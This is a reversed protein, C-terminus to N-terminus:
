LNTKFSQKDTENIELRNTEKKLFTKIGFGCGWYLNNAPDQGNGIKKPVPIIGQNDNDCLAVLVHIYRAQCFVQLSILLLSLTLTARM